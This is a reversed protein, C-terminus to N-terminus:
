NHKFLATIQLAFTINSSNHNNVWVEFTSANKLGASNISCNTIGNININIISLFSYGEPVSFQLDFSGSSLSSLTLNSFDFKEM